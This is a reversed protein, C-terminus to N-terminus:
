PLDNRVYIDLADIPKLTPIKAKLHYDAALAARLTRDTSLSLYAPDRIQKVVIAPPRHRMLEALAKPQDVAYGEAANALHETFTFRSPLCSHTLLYVISPGENLYICGYRTYPTLTAVMQDIKRHDAAMRTTSPFETTGVYYGLASVLIVALWGTEGLLMACDISMPVLTPLLYHTYFHGIVFYGGMAAVTWIALFVKLPSMTHRWVSRGFAWGAFVLMPGILIANAAINGAESVPAHKLFISYFNAYAFADGHGMAVYAATALATPLVAAAVWLAAHLGLDLLGRGGRWRTVLLWVGFGIGEVFATYKVQIALGALGMAALAFRRSGRDDAVEGAKVVFLGATAMILNYFVPSQGGVGGLVPLMVLYVCGAMTAVHIPALRSAIRTVVFATMTVSILAGIQYALIGDASFPRLAAYILFLGIPKRDWIDVYPLAGQWMRDGVLLYFQEDSGIAPDGLWLGRTVLAVAFVTALVVLHQRAIKPIPRAGAAAAVDAFAM